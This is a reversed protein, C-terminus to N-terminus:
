AKDTWMDEQYAYGLSGIGFPYNHIYPAVLQDAYLGFFNVFPPHKTYILNQVDKYAQYRENDDLKGAASKVATDVEPDSFGTDYHNNGTIGGTVYWQLAFDPTQYQQNLSLSATLKNTYYQAVWTGADLPQPKATVGADSMNKVFINVYDVVNSSTPHSFSFETVGAAQFMKKANAVDHPQAKSLEDKSLAYKDFAYTILGIPEGAGHGILQIFQDRDIAMNVADRVRGDTWPASKTSMWFSNYSISKDHHYQITKDGNVIEKAEDQNTAGYADIQGATFATRYTAQDAFTRIINQNLYPRDKRYYTPNKVMTAHDGETLETLSFPGAGVAAKKLNANQLWEKPVIAGILNNGVNPITWAYPSKMVMRFTSADPADMKDIWQNAFAYGNSGSAPDKIRTWSALVDSSDLARVPVGQTNAGIMVNPRIKFVWTINDSQLEQSEALDQIVGKVAPAPPNTTFALYDRVLYNYVEPVIGSGGYVSNHPDTGAFPGTFAATYTGGAKGTSLTAAASAASSPAASASGAPSASGGPTSTKGSSNDDGCGVLGISAAGLGAATAGGLFMRRSLRSARARRLWYNDNHDM